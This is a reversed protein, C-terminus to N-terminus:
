WRTSASRLTRMPWSARKKSNTSCWDQVGCFTLEVAPISIERLLEDLDAATFGEKAISFGLSDVGSNLLKLAEANAEKPCEVAVTQHVHWRNHTRTGRVFPFEGAQSGLFQIGELNEARYYPRVNFGEGTRWM